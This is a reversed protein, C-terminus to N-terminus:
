NREYTWRRGNKSETSKLWCITNFQFAAYLIHLDLNVFLESIIFCYMEWFNIIAFWGRRWCHSFGARWVPFSHQGENRMLRFGKAYVFRKEKLVMDRCINSGSQLCYVHMSFRSERGKRKFLCRLNKRKSNRKRKSNFAADSDLQGETLKCLKTKDPMWNILLYTM